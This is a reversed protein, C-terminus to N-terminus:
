ELFRGRAASLAAAHKTPVFVDVKQELCFALCWDVYDAAALGTPEVHFAHAAGAASSHAHAHSYITHFRGAQDAERVLRLVTAISSFASNYWVREVRQPATM